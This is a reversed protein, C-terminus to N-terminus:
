NGSSPKKATPKSPATTKAPATQARPKEKKPAAIKVVIEAKDHYEKIKDMKLKDKELELLFPAVAKEGVLKMLTGM